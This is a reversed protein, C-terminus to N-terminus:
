VGLFKMANKLCIKEAENGLLKATEAVANVFENGYGSDSNLIFKESGFKEVIEVVDKPELKGLQVTLGIWYEKGVVFELNEFNVHDIVALEPPFNIEELIELIKQTIVRKNGRPTHIVCPIDKEMAIKLQSIFVEREEDSANELGIEGFLNWDGAELHELVIRYNSPICRPHIGIGPIADIGLIKCRRVEFEELKRFGDILTQPFIPKIPYFSLTCLKEIGSEKMKRLETVGLGETHVHPDFFM